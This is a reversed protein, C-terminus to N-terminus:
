EGYSLFLYAGANRCGTGSKEADQEAKSYISEVGAKEATDAAKGYMKAAESINKVAEKLIFVAIGTNESPSDSQLMKAKEEAWPMYDPISRLEDYITIVNDKLRNESRDSSYKRLFATFLM